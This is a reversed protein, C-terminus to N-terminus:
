RHSNNELNGKNAKNMINANAFEEFQNGFHFHLKDRKERRARRKNNRKRNDDGIVFDQVQVQYVDNFKISMKNLHVRYSIYNKKYQLLQMDSDVDGLIM